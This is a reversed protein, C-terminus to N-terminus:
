SLHSLVSGGLLGFGLGGAGIRIMDRRSVGCDSLRSKGAMLM